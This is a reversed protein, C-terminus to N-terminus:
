KADEKNVFYRIADAVVQWGARTPHIDRPNRQLFHEPSLLKDTHLFSVHTFGRCAFSIGRNLLHVATEADARGPFPNAYLMVITKRDHFSGIVKRLNFIATSADSFTRLNGLDNGGLSILAVPAPTAIARSLQGDRDGAWEAATSGAVAQRLDPAVGLIEPWGAYQNDTDSEHASAWSDGIVLLDNM